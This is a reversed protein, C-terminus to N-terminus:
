ESGFFMEAVTGPETMERYTIGCDRWATQRMQLVFMLDTQARLRFPTDDSVARFYSADANEWGGTDANFVELSYKKKDRENIKMRVCHRDKRTGPHFIASVHGAAVYYHGDDKTATPLEDDFVVGVASATSLALLGLVGYQLPSV